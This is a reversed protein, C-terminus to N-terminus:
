ARTSTIGTSIELSTWRLNRTCQIVLFLTVRKIHIGFQDLHTWTVHRPIVNAFRDANFGALGREKALANVRDSRENVKGAPEAAARLFM